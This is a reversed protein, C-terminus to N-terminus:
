CHFHEAPSSGALLRVQLASARASLGAGNACQLVLTVPAACDLPAAVTAQRQGAVRLDLDAVRGICGSAPAETRAEAMLLLVGALYRPGASRAGAAPAVRVAAFRLSLTSGEFRVASLEADALDLQLPAATDM